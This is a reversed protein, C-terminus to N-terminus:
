EFMHFVPRIEKCCDEANGGACLGLSVVGWIWKLNSTPSRSACIAMAGVASGLWTVFRQGTSVFILHDLFHKVEFCASFGGGDHVLEGFTVAIGLDNGNSAVKGCLFFLSNDHFTTLKNL